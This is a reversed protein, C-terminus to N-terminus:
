VVCTMTCGKTVKAHPRDLPRSRPHGIGPTTPPQGSRLLLMLSSKPFPSQVSGAQVNRTASWTTVRPTRPLADLRFHCSGSQIKISRAVVLGCISSASAVEEVNAIRASHKGGLCLQFSGFLEDTRVLGAFLGFPCACLLHPLGLLQIVGRVVWLSALQQKDQPAHRELNRSVHEDCAGHDGPVLVWTLSGGESEQLASNYKEEKTEGANSEKKAMKKAVGRAM